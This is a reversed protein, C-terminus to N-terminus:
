NKRTGYNMAKQVRDRLDHRARSLITRVHSEELSMIESIEKTEYGEVDKLQVVERQRDPLCDIAGAIIRKLDWGTFDQEFLMVPAEDQSNFKNHRLYDYSANRVSTMSFADINRCNEFTADCLIRLFVDQVIDEAAEKVVVISKSYGFMKNRLSKDFYTCFENRTM